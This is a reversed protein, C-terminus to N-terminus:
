RILAAATLGDGWRPLSGTAMEHLTVALAYREAALDWQKRRRESLFPDLYRPTGAQLDTAPTGSLSFDFLM